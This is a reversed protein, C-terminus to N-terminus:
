CSLHDYVLSNAAPTQLQIAFRAGEENRAGVVLNIGTLQGFTAPIAYPVPFGSDDAQEVEGLLTPSVLQDPNIAAALAAAHRQEEGGIRIAETRLEPESLSAVLAQYSAGAWAEFAHAINLLDRPLDDTGELAGLIPAVAREMVFPNPCRFEEAGVGTALAGVEDAHREHDEVFREVLTTAAAGLAGLDAAAAYVALATYELSQATRLLVGDDVEAEPLTPAAVAVGLRGPADSGTRDDGCAAVIAGFSLVLGGNRLLARRDMSPNPVGAMM